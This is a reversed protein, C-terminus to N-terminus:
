LSLLISKFAVLYPFPSLLVHSEHCGNAAWFVKRRFVDPILCPNQLPFYNSGLLIQSPKGPPETPLSDAQWNLLRLFSHNGDGPWSSGTSSSIAVWELIRAQLIWHVSSGPPSCDVPDYLPPCPQVCCLLLTPLDCHHMMHGKPSISNASPLM